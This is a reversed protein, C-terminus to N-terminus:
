NPPKKPKRKPATMMDMIRMAARDVEDVDDVQYFTYRPGNPGQEILQVKQGATREIELIWIYWDRHGRIADAFKTASYTLSSLYFHKEDYDVIRRRRKKGQPRTGSREVEILNKAGVWDPLM